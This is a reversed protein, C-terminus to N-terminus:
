NFPCMCLLNASIYFSIPLKLLPHQKYNITIICNENKSSLLNKESLLDENVNM